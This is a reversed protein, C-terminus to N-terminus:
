IAGYYEIMFDDSYYYNLAQFHSIFSYYLLIFEEKWELTEVVRIIFGLEQITLTVIFKFYFVPKIRLM